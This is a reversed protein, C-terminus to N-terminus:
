RVPPSTPLPLAPSRAPRPATAPWVLDALALRARGREARDETQAPFMAIKSVSDM